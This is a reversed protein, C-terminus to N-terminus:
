PIQELAYAELMKQLQVLVTQLHGAIAMNQHGYFQQTLEPTIDGFRQLWQLIHGQTWYEMLDQLDLFLKNRITTGAPLGYAMLLEGLHSMILRKGQQYLTSFLSDLHRHKLYAVLQQQLHEHRIKLCGHTIHLHAFLAYHQNELWQQYQCQCAEECFCHELWLALPKTNPCPHYLQARVHGQHDFFTVPIHQEALKLLACFGDQLEGYCHVRLLRCVPVRVEHTYTPKIRLSNDDLWVRSVKHADLMVSQYDSIPYDSM